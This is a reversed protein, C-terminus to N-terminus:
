FSNVQVQQVVEQDDSDALVQIQNTKLINSFVAFISFIVLVLRQLVCNLFVVVFYVTYVAYM